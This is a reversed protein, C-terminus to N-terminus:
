TDMESHVVVRLPCSLFDFGLNLVLSTLELSTGRGKSASIIHTAALGEMREAFNAGSVPM